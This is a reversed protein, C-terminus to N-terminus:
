SASTSPRFVSVHRDCGTVAMTDLLALNLSDPIAIEGGDGHVVVRSQPGVLQVALDLWKAPAFTARSTALDFGPGRYRNDLSARIVEVRRGVGIYDAAVEIFDARKRRPEMAVFHSQSWLAALVLTEMGAGAGVDIVTDPTGGLSAVLQAVALTEFVHDHLVRESTDSGVLNTRANFRQLIHLLRPLAVALEAPLEVDVRAAIADLDARTTM